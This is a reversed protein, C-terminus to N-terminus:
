DVPTTDIAETKTRNGMLELPPSDDYTRQLDEQAFFLVCGTGDKLRASPYRIGDIPRGVKESLRYRVYETVVQSPVYEVHERGDKDIPKTLDDVFAHLFGIAARDLITEHDGDFLSPTRPLGVLDLLVLDKLVKFTATTREAPRLDCRVQTEAVATAEEIAAYFMSVGAPSMRNSFRADTTAPPGLAALTNAPRRDPSHIRVRFLETGTQLTWFLGHRQFLDGLEDLIESPETVESDVNEASPPFLLYRVRHKILDSFREWGMRRAQEETLSYPDRHVWACDSFHRILDRLLEQGDLNWGLGCEELLEHADLTPLLYGGEATEFGVSNAADEYETAIRERM